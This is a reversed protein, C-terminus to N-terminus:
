MLDGVVMSGKTLSLDGLSLISNKLSVSPLHVNENISINSCRGDKDSEKKSTFPYILAIYFDAGPTIFATKPMGEILFQTRAFDIMAFHFEIYFVIGFFTSKTSTCISSM